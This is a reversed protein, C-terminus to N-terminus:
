KSGPPKKKKEQAAGHAEATLHGVSHTVPPVRVLVVVDFVVGGVLCVGCESIVTQFTVTTSLSFVVRTVALCM